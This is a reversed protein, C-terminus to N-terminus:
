QEPDQCVLISTRNERCKNIAAIVESFKTNDSHVYRIIQASIIIIAILILHKIASEPLIM